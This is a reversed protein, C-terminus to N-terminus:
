ETPQEDAPAAAETTCCKCPCIQKCDPCYHRLGNSTMVEYTNGYLVLHLTVIRAQCLDHECPETCHTEDLRAMTSGM